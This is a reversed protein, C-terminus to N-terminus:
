RRTGPPPSRASASRPWSLVKTEWTISWRPEALPPPFYGAGRGDIVACFLQEPAPFDKLRQIGVSETAVADGALGRATATMLLGDVYGREAAIARSVLAHHDALVGPWASGLETALRTSGVIDTFPLATTGQPPRTADEV